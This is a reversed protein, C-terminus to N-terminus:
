KDREIVKYEIDIAVKLRKIFRQEDRECILVVMPKKGTQKAYYLAQGIGEAWKECWDFEIAHTKTLCDVRTRDPLIYETKGNWQECYYDVYDAEHWADM